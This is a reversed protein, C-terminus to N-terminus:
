HNYERLTSVRRTYGGMQSHLIIFFNSNLLIRVRKEVIGQSFVTTQM